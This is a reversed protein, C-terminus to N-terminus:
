SKLSYQGMSGVSFESLIAIEHMRNLTNEDINTWNDMEFEPVEAYIYNNPTSSGSNSQDYYVFQHIPCWDFKGLVSKLTTLVQWGFPLTGYNGGMDKADWPTLSGFMRSVARGGSSYDALNWVEGRTIVESGVTALPRSWFQGSGLSPYELPTFDNVKNWFPQAHYTPMIRFRLRTAVMIEEPTPSDHHMNLIFDRPEVFTLLPTPFAGTTDLDQAVPTYIKINSVLYGENIGPKQNVSGAVFTSMMEPIETSKSDGPIYKLGPYLITANEFQSLVEKNYVPTVTYNDAIPLVRFIGGTGFANLIDASMYNIDESGILPNILRETWAQLDAVTLLGTKNTVTSRKSGYFQVLDLQSGTTGTESYQFFKDPVYMYYQAKTTEADKYINEAMWIHRTIYTIDKPVCISALKYAYTNIMARFDALNMVLDDYDIGMATLLAKPTYKDWVSYYSMIGYARVLYSYLTYASDSALLMMMLDPMEYEGTRSNNSRMYSFLSYGAINIADTASQANGITPTFLLTMIGPVAMSNTGIFGVGENRNSDRLTANAFPYGTANAFPITSVDKLLAPTAAYWSPDNDQRSGTDIPNKCNDKGKNYEREMARDQFNNKEDSGKKRRRSRPKFSKEKENPIRAM